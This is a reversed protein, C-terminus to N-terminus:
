KDVKWLDLAEDHHDNASQNQRYFEGDRAEAFSLLLAQQQELQAHVRAMDDRLAALDNQTLPQPTDSSLWMATLRASLFGLLGIGFFVILGALVKGEPTHPTVDGYGVTTATIVTFYLADTYSTITPNHGREVLWMAYSSGVWLLSMVPWLFWLSQRGGRESTEASLASVIRYASILRVLRLIRIIRFSGALPVCALVDVWHGRVYVWRAPADWLRVLFEVLFIGSAGLLLASPVSAANVDSRIALLVYVITLLAM